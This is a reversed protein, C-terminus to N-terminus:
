GDREGDYRRVRVWSQLASRCGDTWRRQEAPDEVSPGFGTRTYKHCPPVGGDTRRRAWRRHGGQELGCHAPISISAPPLCHDVPPGSPLSATHTHTHTDGERQRERPHTPWFGSRAITRLRRQQSQATPTTSDDFDRDQLTQIQREGWIVLQRHRLGPSKPASGSRTEDQRTKDQGTRGRAQSGRLRRARSQRQWRGPRAM